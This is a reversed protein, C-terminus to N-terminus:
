VQRGGGNNLMGRDVRPPTEVRYVKLVGRYRGFGTTKLEVLRLGVRSERGPRRPAPMVVVNHRM